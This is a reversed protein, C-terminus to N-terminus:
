DPTFIVILCKCEEDGMAFLTDGGKSEGYLNSIDVKLAKGIRILTLVPLAKTSNEVESLYGKTFGTREALNELTM